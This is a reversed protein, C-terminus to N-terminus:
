KVPPPGAASGGVTAPVGGGARQAAEVRLPEYEDRLLPNKQLAEELHALAAQAARRGAASGPMARAALLHLAGQLAVTEQDLPDLAHAHATFRLGAKIASAAAGVDRRPLRLAWEAQWRRLEAAIRHIGAQHGQTRLAEDLYRQAAQLHADSVGADPRAAGFLWRARLLEGQGMSVADRQCGESKQCRSVAQALRVVAAEPDQGKHLELRALAVYFRLVQPYKWLWSFKSHELEDIHREIKSRDVVPERTRAQYELMLAYVHCLYAPLEEEKKAETQAFATLAANLREMPSVGQKLLVEGRFIMYRARLAQAYQQLAPIKEMKGIWFEIKQYYEAPDHGTALAQMAAKLVISGASYMAEYLLGPNAVNRSDKSLLFDHALEEFRALSDSADLGHKLEHSNKLLYYQLLIPTLEPRTKILKEALEIATDIEPGLEDRVDLYQFLYQYGELEIRYADTQQPDAALSQEAAALLSQLQTGPARGLGISGSGLSHMWSMALGNRVLADSRAFEAAAGYATRAQDFQELAAEFDRVEVRDLGLAMHTDGALRRAEYLWPVQVVAQQAHTLAQPYDGHCYALLATVYELEGAGMESSSGAYATLQEIAPQRYLRGLETRRLKKAAEDSIFESRAWESRYLEALTRGLAYSLGPTAYGDRRASQLQALAGAYDQLALYGRGLAYYGPGTAAAGESRMKVEIRRLEKLAHSRERGIDHLPAMYGYQMIAEIERAQEGFRQEIRLRRASQLRARVLVGSLVAVVLLSFSSVSILLRHRRLRYLLRHLLSPPRAVIPEGDLYAQLDRGLAQASEYRRNPSKELCKYAITELDRPVTPALKRLPRPEEQMVKLLTEVTSTGFFPPQLTLLEYLMAGLSYVDSRRDVNRTDGRAQEPSMYAPTGLVAGSRTLQEDAQPDHALGFDMVTARLTGDERRQILINSPKLDRHIVGIRHAAHAASAVDILVRIREELRIQAQAQSLPIGPILEMAIYSKGDIEGVEYVKCVNDHEIRAQARAEQLFRRAGGQREGRIFKLAVARQLRRDCAEYVMGMGGEGILRLLEYRDWNTVPFSPAAPAPVSSPSSQWRERQIQEVAASVLDGRALLRDIRPGWRPLAAADASRPVEDPPPLSSRSLWGRSVAEDLIWDEEERSLMCAFNYASPQLLFRTFIPAHPRIWSTHAARAAAGPVPEESM